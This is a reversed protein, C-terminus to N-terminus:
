SGHVLYICAAMGLSCPDPLLFKSPIRLASIAGQWTVHLCHELLCTALSVSVPIALFVPGAGVCGEGACMSISARRLM